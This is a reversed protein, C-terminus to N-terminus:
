NGWFVLLDEWTCVNGPFGYGQRSEQCGQVPNWITAGLDPWSSHPLSNTYAWTGFKGTVSAYMTWANLTPGNTVGVLSTGYTNLDNTVKAEQWNRYQPWAQTGACERWVVTFQYEDGSYCTDSNARIM